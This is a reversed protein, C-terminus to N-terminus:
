VFLVFEHWVEGAEVKVQVENDNEEVINIGRFNNKIVLGNFNETFLINSGGGLILIPQNNDTLVEKLDDINNVEVFKLSSVDIGFTNYGKLSINEKIEM